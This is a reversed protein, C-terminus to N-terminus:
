GQAQREPGARRALEYNEVHICGLLEAELEQLETMLKRYTLCAWDPIRFEDAAIRIEELRQALDLHEETMLVLEDAGVVADRDLLSPFIALEELEFHPALESLLDSVLKALEHLEPDKAGHVVAVKLAMARVWPLVQRMRAHRELVSAVLEPTSQDRHSRHATM